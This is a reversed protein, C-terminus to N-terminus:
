RCVGAVFPEGSLEFEDRAGVLGLAVVEGVEGFAGDKPAISDAWNFM